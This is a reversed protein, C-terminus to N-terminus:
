GAPLPLQGEPALFIQPEGVQNVRLSWSGLEVGEHHLSLKLVGPQTLVIGQIEAVARVRLHGQFDVRLPSAFLQENNLVIQILAEM